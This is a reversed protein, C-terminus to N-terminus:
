GFLSSMMTIEFYYIVPGSIDVSIIFGKEASVSRWGSGTATLGDKSISISNKTKKWNNGKPNAIPSVLNKGKLIKILIFERKTV